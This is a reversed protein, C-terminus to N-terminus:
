QNKQIKFKSSLEKINIASAKSKKLQIAQKFM